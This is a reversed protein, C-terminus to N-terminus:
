TLHQRSEQLAFEPLPTENGSVQPTADDQSIDAIAPLYTHIMAQVFINM